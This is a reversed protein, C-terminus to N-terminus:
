HKDNSIPSLSFHHNSDPDHDHLILQWHQSISVWNPAGSSSFDETFHALAMKLQCWNKWFRKIIRMCSKSKLFCWLLSPLKAYVGDMSHQLHSQIVLGSATLWDLLQGGPQNLLQGRYSGLKGRTSFKKTSINIHLVTVENAGVRFGFELTEKENLTHLAKNM